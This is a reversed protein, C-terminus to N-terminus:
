ILTQSYEIVIRKLNDDYTNFKTSIVPIGTTLYHHMCILSLMHISPQQKFIISISNNFQTQDIPTTINECKNKLSYYLPFTKVFNSFDHTNM